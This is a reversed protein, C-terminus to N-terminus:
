HRQSGRAAKRQAKQNRKMIKRQKKAAKKVSKQQQKAAKRAESGNEGISRNEPQAYVPISWAGSLGILLVLAAIRKM